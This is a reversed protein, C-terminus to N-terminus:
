VVHFASRNENEMFQLLRDQTGFLNQVQGLKILLKFLLLFSIDLKEEVQQIKSQTIKPPVGLNYNNVFRVSSSTTVM